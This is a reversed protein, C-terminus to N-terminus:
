QSNPACDDSMNSM